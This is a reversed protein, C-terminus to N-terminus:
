VEAECSDELDGLSPDSTEAVAEALAECAERAAQRALFKVLATLGAATEPRDHQRRLASPYHVHM